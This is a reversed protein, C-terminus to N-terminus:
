RIRGRTEMGRFYVWVWIGEFFSVIWTVVMQSEIDYKFVFKKIITQTLVLLAFIFLYGIIGEKLRFIWESKIRILEMIASSFVLYPLIAWLSYIMFSFIGFGFMIPAWFVLLSAKPEKSLFYFKLAWFYIFVFIPDGLWSPWFSNKILVLIALFGTAYLIIRIM